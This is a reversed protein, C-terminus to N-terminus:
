ESVNTSHNRRMKRTRPMPRNIAHRGTYEAVHASNEKNITLCKELKTLVRTDLVIIYTSIAM